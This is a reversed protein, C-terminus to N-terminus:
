RGKMLGAAELAKTIVAGIDLPASPPIDACEPM